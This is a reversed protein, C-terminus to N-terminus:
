GSAERAGGASSSTRTSGSQTLQKGAYQASLIEPTDGQAEGYLDMITRQNTVNLILGKEAGNFYVVWKQEDGHDGKVTEEAFRSITLTFERGQLDTKALYKSEGQGFPIPSMNTSEKTNLNPERPGGGHCAGPTRPTWGFNVASLTPAAPASSGTRAAKVPAVKGDAAVWRRPPSSAARRSTRRSCSNRGPGSAVPTQVVFMM